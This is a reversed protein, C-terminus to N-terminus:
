TRIPQDQRILVESSNLAFPARCLEPHLALPILHKSDQLRAAVERFAGYMSWFTDESTKTADTGVAGNVM